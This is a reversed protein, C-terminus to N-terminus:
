LAARGVAVTRHGDAAALVAEATMVVQLGEAFTTVGYPAGAGTREGLVADRFAALEVALPELRPVDFRVGGSDAARPPDGASGAPHFTLAGTLTDATLSGHEGTVVVQRQRVPSLWSVQHSTVTGDTLRGVVSVLDEHDRGPRRFVQASVEAYGSGTLWAALDIDHTALDQVVGVDRVREPFPGQRSTAVHYIRGLEGARLSRRLARVAANFREVHGVCAVVGAASFADVLMRGSQMDLALPKEMLTHVGAQALALGVTLHDQTPVAVVCLDAQCALLKELSEVVLAGHAHGGPDGGPDAIVVLEVGDLAALIRAHHRGMAGLGVLGARLPARV